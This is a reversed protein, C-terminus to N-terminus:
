KNICKKIIYQKWQVKLVTLSTVDVNSMVTQSSDNILSFKPLIEIGNSLISFSSFRHYANFSRDFFDFAFPFQGLISSCIDNTQFGTLIVHNYKLVEVCPLLSTACVASWTAKGSRGFRFCARAQCLQEYNIHIALHKTSNNGFDPGAM